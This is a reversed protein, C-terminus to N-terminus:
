ASSRKLKWKCEARTARNQQHPTQAWCRTHAHYHPLPIFHFILPLPSVQAHAATTAHHWRCTYLRFAHHHMHPPLSHVFPLLYCPRVLVCATCSAGDNVGHAPLGPSPTPVPNPQRPTPALAANRQAAAGNAVQMTNGHKPQVGFSFILSRRLYGWWQTCYLRKGVNTRGAHERM